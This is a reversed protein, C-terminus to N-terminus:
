RKPDLQDGIVDILLKYDKELKVLATDFDQLPIKKAVKVFSRGKMKEIENASVGKIPCYNTAEFHHQWPDDNICLFFDNEGLLEFSNILKEEVVTKYKGALQLITSFFNGWWFMTRIAFVDDQGFFRPHDLVLWPLGKYNEGRSIKYSINLSHQGIGKANKIIEEQKTQLEQLFLQTKHIIANKTLILDANSM